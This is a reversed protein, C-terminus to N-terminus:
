KEHSGLAQITVQIHAPTGHEGAKHGITGKINLVEFADFTLHGHHGQPDTLGAVANFIAQDISEGSGVAMAVHQHNHHEPM